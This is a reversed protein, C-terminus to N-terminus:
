ESVVGAARVGIQALRKRTWSAVANQQDLPQCVLALTVLVMLVASVVLTTDTARAIAVPAAALESNGLGANFIAGGLAFGVVMGLARATSMVGSAVGRQERPAAGLVASTTPSSFLGLGLGLALFSAVIAPTPTDIGVSM